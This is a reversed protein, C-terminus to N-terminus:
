TDTSFPPMMFSRLANELRGPHGPQLTQLLYREQLLINLELSPHNTTGNLFAVHRMQDM